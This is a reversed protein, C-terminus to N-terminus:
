KRQLWQQLQKTPFGFISLSLILTLAAAMLLWLAKGAVGLSLVSDNLHLYVMVYLVPRHWFYVQMTRQGFATIFGLSRQPVILMFSFGVAASAAYCGLRLLPGYARVSDRFPNRGTFLQRLSYLQPTKLLCLALVAALLLLGCIRLAKRNLVNLLKDRDMVAGFLYFPYFIVIRSLCLTDGLSKDLGAFCATLVSIVLVVTLNVKAKDLLGTLLTYAGLVLCFWPIGVESLLTFSFRHTFAWQVLAIVIKLVLYLSLYYAAKNLRKAGPTRRSDFLGSLFFFAPMHFIYIFLFLGRFIPSSATNQDIFHGAVVLLMLFFKCNDFYAIRKVAM